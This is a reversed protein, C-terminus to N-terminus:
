KSLYMDPIKFSYKDMSVDSGEVGMPMDRIATATRKAMHSRLFWIVM